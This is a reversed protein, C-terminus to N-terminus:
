QVTNTFFDYKYATANPDYDPQYYKPPHFGWYMSIVGKVSSRNARATWEIITGAPYRGTMNVTFQHGNKTATTATWASTGQKRHFIVVDGSNISEEGASDHAYAYVSATNSNFTSYSIFDLDKGNDWGTVHRYYPENRIWVDSVGDTGTDRRLGFHLHAPYVGNESGSRAVLQGKTVAGSSVVISSLHDYKVFVNDNKIGDGNIDYYLFMEYASPSASTVWGNWQAYVNTGYAAGLDTGNHPNTGNVNRPQNFKSTVILVSALPNGLQTTGAGTSTNGFVVSYDAAGVSTIGAVVTLALAMFSSWFKKM